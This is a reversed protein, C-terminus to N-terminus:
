DEEGCFVERAWALARREELIQPPWFRLGCGLYISDRRFLVPKLIRAYRDETFGYETLEVAKFFGTAVADAIQLGMRRGPAQTHIRDWRFFTGDLENNTVKNRLFVKLDDYSMGSRNSFLIEATGDGARPRAVRCLSAIGELLHAVAQFYLNHGLLDGRNALSPKHVLLSVVRLSASAIEAVLAIRHEHRLDRFHLPKHEPRKLRIRVRDVLRVIELDEPKLTVVASLVFWESSGKGFAFGEDGSEDIYVVFSSSM